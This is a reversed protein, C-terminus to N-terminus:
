IDQFRIGEGAPIFARATRGTVSELWSPPLGPRLVKETRLVGIAEKRIVEGPAIDRMAHLSRNTREYNARESLALRKVGDGLVAEVLEAGREKKMEAILAGGDGGPVAFAAARKVARVMRAFGDPPLAIPDDLGGDARSLCFHKEVAAAGMAVALSPVLEADLSHDSVGTAVGFINRLNRVVRLNYDREPAPYSTVCHLLCVREAEASGAGGFFDLAAEIGALRSVGSSLLTPLGAAAAAGLLAPYNLEPSAVKLLAPRLAAVERASQPGFATCLFILGAKEAYEKMDAYFDSGTELKKFVDYLATEGGPLPVTGTKPHLIEGAYVMQFKVCDAGAEGAARILERARARDGGHGTGLEAIVLPNAADRATGAVSFGM